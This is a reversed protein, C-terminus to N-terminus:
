DKLRWLPVCAHGPASVQLSCSHTFAVWGARQLHFQQVDVHAHVTRSSTFMCGRHGLHCPWCFRVAGAGLRAVVAFLVQCHAGDQGNVAAM